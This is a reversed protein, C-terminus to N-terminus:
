AQFFPLSQLHHQALQRGSIGAWRGQKRRRGGLQHTFAPSRSKRVPPSGSFSCAQGRSSPGTQELLCADAKALIKEHIGVYSFYISYWCFAQSFYMSYACFARPLIINELHHNQVTSVRTLPCNTWFWPFGLSIMNKGWENQHQSKVKGLNKKQSLLLSTFHTLWLVIWLLM